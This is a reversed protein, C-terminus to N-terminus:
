RRVTILPIATEAATAAGHFGILKGVEPPEHRSALVAIPDTCLVVVDGIRARHAAPVPGFWGTDIAEDRSVVTAAPGLVARWRDLVDPAAGDVTHLYRLRPEGAVVSVDAGLAPDADLDIRADPAIDLGGHDATVLLAADDPLGDLLRHLLADVGAAAAAWEPAAIGFVHAATDLASTYGYVLGGTTRLEALVREAYDDDRGVGALRAGRYAADTLGSGVFLQPLVATAPIGAAVMTQFWTRVPQWQRPPPDDRWYIHTLVRDTGPVNLTFGLVGHEGPQAGTGFSVLSTPTTSPFTCALETLSGTAGRLVEALLPAHRAMGPLLHFGMGDVLVVCVRRVDGVKARLDLRDTASGVGLVAAVSPLVDTLSGQM